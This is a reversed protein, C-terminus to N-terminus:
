NKEAITEEVAIARTLEEMCKAIFRAFKVNEGILAMKNELTCPIIVGAEDKLTWDMICYDYFMENWKDSDTEEWAIRQGKEFVHKKKTVLKSIENMKKSAAHRITVTEGPEYEFVHGPNLNKMNIM